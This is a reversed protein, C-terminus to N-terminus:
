SHNIFKSLNLTSKICHDHQFSFEVLKWSIMMLLSSLPDLILWASFNLALWCLFESCDACLNLFLVSFDSFVSRLAGTSIYDPCLFCQNGKISGLITRLFFHLVCHCIQSDPVTERFYMSHTLWLIQRISFRVDSELSFSFFSFFSLHHGLSFSLFLLFTIKINFHFIDM